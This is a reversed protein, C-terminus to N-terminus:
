QRESLNNRIGKKELVDDEGCPVGDSPLLLPEVDVFCPDVIALAEVATVEPEPVLLLSENQVLSCPIPEITPIITPLTTAMAVKTTAIL